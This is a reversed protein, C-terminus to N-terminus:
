LRWLPLRYALTLSGGERLGSVRWTLRAGGPYSLVTAVAAAVGGRMEPPTDAADIAVVRADDVVIGVDAYRGAEGARAAILVYDLQRLVIAGTTSGRDGDVAASAVPTVTLGSPATILPPAPALPDFLETPPVAEGGPLYFQTAKQWLDREDD